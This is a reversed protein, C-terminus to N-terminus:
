RRRRRVVAAIGALGALMLAYTGPEPVPINPVDGDHVAWVSKSSTVDQWYLSVGLGDAAFVQAQDPGAPDPNPVPLGGLWYWGSVGFDGVNVFPGTNYWGSNFQSPLTTNGLTVSYLTSIEPAFRWGTVGHLNLGALYSQASAFTMRGDNPDFGDDFATGAAAKSDAIWTLNMGSHYWADVVGDGDIDRSQLTTEWDGLGSIPAAQATSCAALLAFAAGCKLHHM